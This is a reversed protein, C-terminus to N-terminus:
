AAVRRREFAALAVTAVVLVGGLGAFAGGYSTRHALLAVTVPAAARAVASVGALVGSRAGYSGVGFWDHIVSARELTALGNASGFAVLAIVRGVGGAGGVSALAIAQIALLTSLRAPQPVLRCLHAYLLRAPVQAVGVLGVLRAADPASVGDDVFSPFLFTTAGTSAFAQIAFVSALVGFVARSRAVDGELAPESTRPEPVSAVIAHLPTVVLALAAAFVSTAVRMGYSGVLWAAVPVFVTSALGGFSTIVLLARRRAEPDSFWRTVAAFAPEYSSLGHAVGLCVWAAYVQAMSEASGLAVFGAAGLVSGMLMVPGARYRDVARGALPAVIGAALLAFSFAGSIEAESAALRAATPVLLVGFSYYLLGWTATEAVALAFVAREARTQSTRGGSPSANTLLVVEETSRGGRDLRDRGAAGPLMGDVHADTRVGARLLGRLGALRRDLM